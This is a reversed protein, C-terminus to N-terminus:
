TAVTKLVYGAGTAARTGRGWGVNAGVRSPPGRPSGTPGRWPWRRWAARWCTSCRSPSPPTWWRVWPDARPLRAQLYPVSFLLSQLRQCPQYHRGSILRSWPDAARALCAQLIFCPIPYLLRSPCNIAADVVQGVPRGGGPGSSGAPCLRSPVVLLARHIRAGCPWM